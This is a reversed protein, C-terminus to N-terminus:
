HRLRTIPRSPRSCFVSGVRDRSDFGSPELGVVVAEQFVRDWVIRRGSCPGSSAGYHSWGTDGTPLVSPELFLLSNRGPAALRCDECGTQRFAIGLRFTGISFSQDIPSPRERPAANSPDLRIIVSKIVLAIAM